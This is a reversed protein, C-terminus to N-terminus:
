VGFGVAQRFEGRTLMKATYRNARRKVCSHKHTTNRCHTPTKRARHLSVASCVCSLFLSLTLTLSLNVPMASAYNISTDAGRPWKPNLPGTFCHVVQKLSGRLLIMM